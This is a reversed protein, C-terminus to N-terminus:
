RVREVRAAIPIGALVLAGGAASAVAVAKGLLLSAFLGAILSEGTFTVAVFAPDLHRLSCGCVRFGRLQPVPAKGALAAWTGRELGSWRAGSM